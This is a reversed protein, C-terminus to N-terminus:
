RSHARRPSRVARLGFVAVAAAICAAFGAPEPVVAIAIGHRFNALSYSFAVDGADNLGSSLFNVSTVTSGFLPDGIAIVKDTVPDPGTFIGRGGADLEASFAVTGAENISPTSLVSYAGSSDAVTDTAPDPGIFVGGGGVDLSAVFAVTGADNISVDLGFGAFPGGSDAITDTSPDPGRFIGTGGSYEAFYAVEGLDNIDPASSGLGDIVGTDDAFV